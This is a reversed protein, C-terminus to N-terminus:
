ADVESTKRTKMYVVVTILIIVLAFFASEQPLNIFFYLDDNFAPSTAVDLRLDGNLQVKDLLSVSEESLKVKFEIYGNLTGRNGTSQFKYPYSAFLSDFTTTGNNTIMPNRAIVELNDAHPIRILLVGDRFLL